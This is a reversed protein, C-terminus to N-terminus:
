ARSPQKASSVFISCSWGYYIVIDDMYVVDINDLYEYLMDNM